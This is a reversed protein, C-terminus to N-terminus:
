CKCPCYYKLRQVPLRKFLTSMWLFRGTCAPWERHSVHTLILDLRASLAFFISKYYRHWVFNGGLLAVFLIRGDCFVAARCVMLFILMGSAHYFFFCNWKHSWAVLTLFESFRCLSSSAKAAFRFWRLHYSIWCRDGCCQCVLTLVQWVLLVLKELDLWDFLKRTIDAEFDEEVWVYLFCIRMWLICLESQYHM